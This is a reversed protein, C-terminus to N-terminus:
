FLSIVVLTFVSFDVHKTIQKGKFFVLIM